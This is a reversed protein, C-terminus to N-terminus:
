FEIDIIDEPKESDKYDKYDKYNKNSIYIYNYKDSYQLLYKIIKNFYTMIDEDTPEIKKVKHLYYQLVYLSIANDWINKVHYKDMIEKWRLFDRKTRYNCNFYALKEEFENNDYHVIKEFNTSFLRSETSTMQSYAQLYIKGPYFPTKEEDYPLRFKLSSAIPKLITVWDLQYDNDTKILNNLARQQSGSKYREVDLNRIDSIFLINSADGKYDLADEDKFYRNFIKVNPHPKIDFERSDWLDFTLYPFMKILINIHYGPAAGVYIVKNGEKSYKSLFLIEAILLKLQGLHTKKTVADKCGIKKMEKYSIRGDIQSYKYVIDDTM